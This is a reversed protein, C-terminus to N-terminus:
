AGGGRRLPGIVREAFAELAARKEDLDSMEGTPRLLPPNVLMTLGAAELRRLADPTAPANLAVAADFPRAERGLARRLERLRELIPPVADADYNVGLWGDAAAARRLAAPGHGGVLVPPPVPPVPAMQVPEFDYFEGHHEVMRGSILKRVVLLLEDTRAGRRRFERGVLAFEEEMWGVGIGLRVRGGTLVAATSVAKAVHFPDRLAAVYVAPLFRLRETVGGLHSALSWPELYPTAEDTAMREDAAYPYRSRVTLPRVLHDSMTVGDFGLAEALRALPVLQEPSTRALSQWFEV